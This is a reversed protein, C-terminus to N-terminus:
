RDSLNSAPIAALLDCLCSVYSLQYRPLDTMIDQQHTDLKESCRFQNWYTNCLYYTDHNHRTQRVVLLMRLIFAVLIYSIKSNRCSFTVSPPPPHFVISLTNYAFADGQIFRLEMWQGIGTNHSGINLSSGATGARLWRPHSSCCFCYHVHPTTGSEHSHTSVLLFWFPSLFM